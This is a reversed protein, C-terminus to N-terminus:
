APIQLRQVAVAQGSEEDVEALVAGLWVDKKEVEYRQPKGNLFKEIVRDSKMGIVSNRGGVMGVDTIYATGRPLIREDATQVHTHTGVFLSVQGDLFLGLANKESSAEAHFDVVIVATENRLRAVLERGARFPCDAPGLFVRGALNIIGVKIQRKRELAVVVAGQGLDEVPYNAPRLLRYNQRLYPEIEKQDWIHNGTTIVDVGLAFIEDAIKPTLGFGGAANEGNAIILDPAHERKLAPLLAALAQRGPRGIIDGIFLLKM